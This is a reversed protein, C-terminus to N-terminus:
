SVHGLSRVDYPELGSVHVVIRLPYPGPFTNKKGSRNACRRAIRVSEDIRPTRSHNAQQRLLSYAKSQRCRRKGLLVAAAAFYKTQGGPFNPTVHREYININQASPDFRRGSTCLLLRRFHRQGGVYLFGHCVRRPGHIAHELYCLVGTPPHRSPGCKPAGPYRCHRSPLTVPLAM